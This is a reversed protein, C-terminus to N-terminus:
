IKLNMCEDTFNQKEGSNNKTKREEARAHVPNKREWKPSPSSLNTCEYSACLTAIVRGDEKKIFELRDCDEKKQEWFKELNPIAYRKDEENKDVKELWKAIQGVLAPKERTAAAACDLILSEPARDAM